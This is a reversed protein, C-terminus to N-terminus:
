DYSVTYLNLIYLTVYHKLLARICQWELAKQMNSKINNVDQQHGQMCFDSLNSMSYLPWENHRRLQVGISGDHPVAGHFHSPCLVTVTRVIFKNMWIIIWLSENPTDIPGITPTNKKQLMFILENM